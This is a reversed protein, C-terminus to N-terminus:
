GDGRRERGPLGGRRDLIEDLDKGKGPLFDSISLAYQM